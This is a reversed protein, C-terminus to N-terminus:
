VQLAEVLSERRKELYRGAPRLFTMYLVIEISILLILILPGLWAAGVITPISISGGIIIANAILLGFTALVATQSPSNTISSIDRPVPVAPSLFNGVITAFGLAAVFALCGGILAFTPPFGSILCFAIVGELGLIVNYLWVGLNKGLIIKEPEVPSLFFSQVGDSEWAYANFLYNNSFMSCYIMLGVFVLSVRDLGLFSQDLDRAVLLAMAVVFVPMIVLNFKGSTSRLLYLLEKSAIARVQVPVITLREMTWVRAQVNEPPPSTTVSHISVDGELLDRSVIAFGLVVGAALWLVLWLLAVTPPGSDAQIASGLGRAAITPPFVSAGHAVATTFSRPVLDGFWEEGQEEAQEQYMAPLMSAVVLVVFGVLAALERTKRKQLAYQVLLLVTNCWVVLCVAFVGVIALWSAVPAHDFFIAVITVSALIPYWFLNVGGAFSAALSVRYINWHSIPFVLLRRLPVQPKGAGLFVPMIVALFALMWFVVMLAMLVAEESGDGLGAHVVVSLAFALLVSLAAGLLALIVAVATDALTARSRLGHWWIRARLWVLASFQRV